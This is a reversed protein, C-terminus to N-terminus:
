ALAVGLDEMIELAIVDPPLLNAFESLSEDRLWFIDLSAKNRTILEGYSYARWRGNPNEESWTSRREHRNAPFCAVFEDLDERKLPNTKGTFHKSTRLDFDWLRSTWAEEQAAKRDFFLVNAECGPCLVTFCGGCVPTSSEIGM